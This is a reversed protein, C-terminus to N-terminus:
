SQLRRSMEMAAEAEDILGKQQYLRSLSTHALPEEPAIRIAERAHLIAEDVKGQRDLVQSLGLHGLYFEPDEELARQFMEFAGDLNGASIQKLGERYHDKAAM